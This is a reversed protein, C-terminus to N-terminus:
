GAARELVPAVDREPRETRPTTIGLLRDYIEEVARANRQPDFRAGAHGMAAAGMRARLEPDDILRGLAGAIAQPTPDRLLTGTVGDLLLGGGDESGSAVVPKGYMEAELVPRGLGVGQNPFALIDLASYIEGTEPTFPLFSFHEQVGRERVLEHIATEEDSLVNAAAFIRGRITRFYAPPRVGGGMIVFHAPAGARILLEAAEVFEPWGKQRRIFGAFGILVRGEPLGLSRRSAETDPMGAPVPVSNHVITVPLRIRFRAAVDRDIAIATDGWREMLSVILRSRRDLGEGALASRLHWVVRAGNRRAVMAAPLLPADNLHVLPFRYERMLEALRRVHQPLYAAERVLVLWRLGEYPNDWAHAFIASPGTHVTAGANAFLEAAPGEPCLVHAEFRGDLHAILHALSSPAGGLQPRHHVYLIRTRETAPLIRRYLQEVRRTNAVPDFSREAHTRAARGLQERRADDQLLGSIADALREVSFDEVLIGTEGPIIVGGGTRSGTAVVPVGTAAAEIVPRGLEPGRSPAVVVDAAQYLSTTDMTFQVFRVVDELGLETVLEKAEREYNRALDLLQLGRGIPTRFFKEGRVAGGVVLYSADVGSDRLLAAANIFERFGKSPYIFGFYAILPRDPPVGLGAKAARTNGPHFRDLDVANPLVESAVGFAKAVDENIAISAAATRSIVRRILRSRLDDRTEPLSSRLHWVVPLRNRRALWAAALLPSDNLHVLGFRHERLTRGLRLVHSPLLCLERAFLLWRRGRYTSAWIHTFTGVPGPHVVAGVSRFLEAAPGEPCYVHPEFQTRDLERILYSLSTPAGGLESRHHVFLVPHPPRGM